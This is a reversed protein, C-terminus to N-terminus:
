LSKNALLLSRFLFLLFLLSVIQSIISILIFYNKQTNTKNLAIILQERMEEQNALSKELKKSNEEVFDYYFNFKNILNYTFKHLDSWDKLNFNDLAFDFRDDDYVLSAYKEFDKDNLNEIENFVEDFEVEPYVLYGERNHYEPFLDQTQWAFIDLIRGRISNHSIVVTDYFDIFRTKAIETALSYSIFNDKIELRENNLITEDLLLIINKFWYNRYKSYALYKSAAYVQINLMQSSLNNINNIKVNYNELQIKKNRLDDEKRIVMQDFFYSLITFFAIALIFFIFKSSDLKRRM